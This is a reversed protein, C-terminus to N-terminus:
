LHTGLFCEVMGMFNVTIHQKLLRQFQAEVESNASFYVFDDVYLGLILPDSSPTDAPDSPDVVHGSFLCPNYANQRLGLKDLISKIKVNWHWPSHCLSYLMRKLLWYEDKKADPDGIPPKVITIEDPSLIGQCFANKCDGQQLTRQQEVAMSVILRM